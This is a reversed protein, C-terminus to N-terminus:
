EPLETSIILDLDSALNAIENGQNQLKKIATMIPGNGGIAEQTLAYDFPAPIEKVAALTETFVATYNEEKDKEAKALIDQISTGSITQGDITTYTGFYLNYIGQANLIVDRHTNDSFCSHEDEQDQNDLAVFMRESALESKSLIGMGTLIKDIAAKADMEIFTRRYIGNEAWQNKVYALHDVLLDACIKLYEGRRDQNSATGTGDTVFDTFPRNGPTMLATNADDQGWLLFEIAHYGVSINKEGGNENANELLEPTIEISPDNIIGATTNGDVYDIYAEDLPWANLLGEPGNVDDIPGEQFRFVESQGYAERAALWAEKAADLTNQSPSEILVNISERLTVATLYADNYNAYAIKAVTQQYETQLSAVKQKTCATLGITLVTIVIFIKYM